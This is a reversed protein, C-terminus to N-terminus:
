ALHEPEFEDLEHCACFSVLDTRTFSFIVIVVLSGSGASLLVFARATGHKTVLV